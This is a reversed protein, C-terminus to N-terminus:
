KVSFNVFQDLNGNVYIEVQYTGTLWSEVPTLTFDLNRTGDSTETSSDIMSDNNDASGVDVTYWIAEFVSNSPANVIHVVAHFIDDVSFVKTINVPDLNTGQTTKAITVSDILGSSKPVLGSEGASSAHSTLSCSLSVMALVIAFSLLKWNKM